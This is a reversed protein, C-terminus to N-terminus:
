CEEKGVPVPMTTAPTAPVDADLPPLAEATADAFPIAMDAEFAAPFDAQNANPHKGTWTQYAAM